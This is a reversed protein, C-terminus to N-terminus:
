AQTEYKITGDKYNMCIFDDCYDTIDTDREHYVCYGNGTYIGIINGDYLEERENHNFMRCFDCIPYCDDNCKKM